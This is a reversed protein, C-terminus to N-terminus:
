GAVGVKALRHIQDALGPPDELLAAGDLWDGARGGLGDICDLARRVGGRGLGVVLGLHSV